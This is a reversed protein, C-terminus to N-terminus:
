PPQVHVLDYFYLSGNFCNFIAGISDIVNLSSQQLSVYYLIGQGTVDLQGYGSLALYEVGPISANDTTNNINVFSSPLIQGDGVALLGAADSAVSWGATFDIFRYKSYNKYVTGTSHQTINCTIICTNDSCFQLSVTRSM